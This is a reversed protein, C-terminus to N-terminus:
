KSHLIVRLDEGLIGGLNDREMDRPQIKKIDDGRPEPTKSGCLM